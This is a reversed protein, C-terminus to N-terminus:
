HGDVFNKEGATIAVPLINAPHPLPCTAWPTFVCPPNYARNFDIVVNGEDDPVPLYIFRGGAYTELGSTEDGFVIFMSEVDVSMPELHFERGDVEFVLAGPCQSTTEYGLVNPVRITRPPTYAEFRATIRWSEDIPFREIGRFRKLARAKRDKLRVYLAGDREIVHFRFSGMDLVTTSEQTDNRLEMAMVPEGDHLITVGPEAALTVTGNELLFIGAQQPAKDPFVLDNDAHSGFRNIGESLPFLGILSLWGDERELREIRKAHWEDVSRRYAASEGSEALPSLPVLIAVVTLIALPGACNGTCDKM